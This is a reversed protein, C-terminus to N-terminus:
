NYAHRIHTLRDFLINVSPHKSYRFDELPKIKNPDKKFRYYSSTGKCRTVIGFLEFHLLDRLTFGLPKITELSFHRGDMLRFITKAMNITEERASKM